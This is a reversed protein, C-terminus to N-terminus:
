LQCKDSYSTKLTMKLVLPCKQSSIILFRFNQLFWLKSFILAFFFTRKPVTVWNPKTISILCIKSCFFIARNFLTKLLNMHFYKTKKKQRMWNNRKRSNNLIRNFPFFIISVNGSLQEKSFVVQFFANKIFFVSPLKLM